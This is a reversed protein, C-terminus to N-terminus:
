REDLKTLINGVELRQNEEILEKIKHELNSLRNILDDYLYETKQEVSLYDIRAKLYRFERIFNYKEKDKDM